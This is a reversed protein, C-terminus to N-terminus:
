SVRVDSEAVERMDDLELRVREKLASPGSAAEGLKRGM